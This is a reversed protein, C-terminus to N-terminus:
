GPGQREPKPHIDGTTSLGPRREELQSSGAAVLIRRGELDDLRVIAVMMMMRAFRPIAQGFADSRRRTEPVAMGTPGPSNSLEVTGPESTSM